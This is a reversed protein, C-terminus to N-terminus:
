KKLNTSIEGCLLKKSVHEKTINNDFLWLVATKQTRKNSKKILNV